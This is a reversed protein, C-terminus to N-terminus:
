LDFSNFALSALEALFQAIIASEQIMEGNYIFTPVQGLPNIKLYEPTRPVELDVIEEQFPIDLEKLVIHARHAMPCRHNTYLTIGAAVQSGM